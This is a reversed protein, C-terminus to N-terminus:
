SVRAKEAKEELHHNEGWTRDRSGLCGQQPRVAKGQVRTLGFRQQREKRWMPRM